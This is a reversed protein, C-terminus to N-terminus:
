TVAPSVNTLFTMPLEFQIALSALQLEKSLQLEENINEALRDIYTPAILTGEIQNGRSVVNTILGKKAIDDVRLEIISSGMNLLNPLEILAIRGNEMVCDLIM